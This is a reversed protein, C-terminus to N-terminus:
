THVRFCAVGWLHLEEERERFVQVGNTVKVTLGHCHELGDAQTQQRDECQLRLMYSFLRCQEGEGKRVSEGRTPVGAAVYIASFACGCETLRMHCTEAPAGREEVKPVWSRAVLPKASWAEAGLRM